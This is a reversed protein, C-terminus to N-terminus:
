LQGAGVSELELEQDELPDPPKKSQAPNAPQRRQERSITVAEAAVHQAQVHHPVLPPTLTARALGM